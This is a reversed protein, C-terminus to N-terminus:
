KLKRGMFLKKNLGKIAAEVASVSTLHVFGYYLPEKAKTRCIKVSRIGGFPALLNWLQEQTCFFSLNGVFVSQSARLSM